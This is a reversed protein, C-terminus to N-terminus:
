GRLGIAASSGPADAMSASRVRLPASGPYAPTTADAESWLDRDVEHRAIPIWTM